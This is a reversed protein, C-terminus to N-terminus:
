FSSEFTNGGHKRMNGQQFEQSGVEVAVDAETSWFLSFLL